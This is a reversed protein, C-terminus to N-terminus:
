VCKIELTQAVDDATHDELVGRAKENDIRASGSDSIATCTAPRIEAAGKYPSGGEPKQDITL